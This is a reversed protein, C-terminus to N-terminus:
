TAQDEWERARRGDSRAKIRGHRAIADPDGAAAAAALDAVATALLQGAAQTARDYAAVQEPRNRLLVARYPSM